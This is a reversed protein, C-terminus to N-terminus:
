GELLNGTIQSDKHVIIKESILTVGYSKKYHDCSDEISNSFRTLYVEYLFTFLLTGFDKIPHGM